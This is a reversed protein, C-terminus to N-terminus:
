IAERLQEPVLANAETEAEVLFVALPRLEALIRTERRYWVAMSLSSSVVSDRYECRPCRRALVVDRDAPKADVEYELLAQCEPCYVLPTATGFLERDGPNM